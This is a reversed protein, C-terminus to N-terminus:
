SQWHNRCARGARRRGFRCCFLCILLTREGSGAARTSRVNVDSPSFAREAQGGLAPLLLRLRDLRKSRVVGAAQRYEGCDAACRRQQCAASRGGTSRAGTASIAFAILPDPRSRQSSMAAGCGGRESLSVVSLVPESRPLGLQIAAAFGILGYRVWMPCGGLGAVLVWAQLM